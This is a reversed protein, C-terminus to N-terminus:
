IGSIGPNLFQEALAKVEAAERVFIEERAKKEEDVKNKAADWQQKLPAFDFPLEKIQQPPRQISISKLRPELKDIPKNNSVAQDYEFQERAFDRVEVSTTATERWQLHGVGKETDFQVLEAEPHLIGASSVPYFIGDVGVLDPTVVIKM